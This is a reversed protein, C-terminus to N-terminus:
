QLQALSQVVVMVRVGYGAIVALDSELSQMKGLRAVEDLLVLVRQRDPGWGEVPPAETMWEGFLRQILIRLLPRVREYDRPTGTLYLSTPHRLLDKPHFDSGVMRSALVPDKFLQLYQTTSAVVSSRTREDMSLLARATGEVMPHRSTEAGDPTLWGRKREPDHDTLAMSALLRQVDGDFSRALEPLSKEDGAYLVDLMGAVLLNAAQNDWFDFTDKKGAPDVLGRALEQLAAVEADGTPVWLLPNISCSGKASADFRLVKQGMAARRGATMSYIEGKVDMVVLSGVAELATPVVFGSTKGRRTAAAVLVHGPGNDWLRERRPAGFGSDVEVDGLCVGGPKPGDLLGLAEVQAGSAFGASGHTTQADELTRRQHRVEVVVLAIGVLWWTAVAAAFGLLLSAHTQSSSLRWAWRLGEAVPYLSGGSALMGLAFPLLIWSAVPRRRLLWAGAHALVIGLGVAWPWALVVSPSGLAPAFDLWRAMGQTASWATAWAGVLWLAAGRTRLRRVDRPGFKRVELFADTM